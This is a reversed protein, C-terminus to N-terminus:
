PTLASLRDSFQVDGALWNEVPLVVRSGNWCGAAADSIPACLRAVAETSAVTVPVGSSISDVMCEIDLGVGEEVGIIDGLIRGTPVSEGTACRADLPAAASQAAAVPEEAPDASSTATGLTYVAGVTVLAVLILVIRVARLTGEHPVQRSENWIPQDPDDPSANM